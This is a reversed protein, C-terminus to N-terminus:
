AHHLKLITGIAALTCITKETLFTTCVINDHLEHQVLFFHANRHLGVDSREIVPFGDLCEVLIQQGLQWISRLDYPILFLVCIVCTVCNREPRRDTAKYLVFFQTIQTIQMRDKNGVQKKETSEHM